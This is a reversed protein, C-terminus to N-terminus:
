AREAPRADFAAAFPDWWASPPVELATKALEMATQTTVAQVMSDIWPRMLKSGAEEYERAQILCELKDADRSCRAELSASPTKANEHEEVLAGIRAALSEPLGEVQDAIIKGPEAATVYPKEVAGLDGTRTEPLDHFLGLCAARQPDAGEQEAIVYALVAVRFSHEAVSEPDRVGGRLWGSRPLNKLHGAEAAFRIIAANRDDTM